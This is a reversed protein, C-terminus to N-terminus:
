ECAATNAVKSHNDIDGFFTIKLTDIDLLSNGM